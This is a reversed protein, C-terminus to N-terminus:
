GPGTQKIKEKVTHALKEIEDARRIVNLSLMDKNTKDVEKKLAIAMTLLQTSEDAIQHKRLSEAAAAKEEKTQKAPKNAAPKDSNAKGSSASGTQAPSAAPQGDQAIGGVVTVLFLLVATAAAWRMWRFRGASPRTRFIGPVRDDQM